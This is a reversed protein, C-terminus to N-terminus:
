SQLLTKMRDRLRKLRMRVAPPSLHLRGAVQRSSEGMLVRGILLARSSPDMGQLLEHMTAQSAIPEEQDQVFLTWGAPTGTSHQRRSNERQRHLLLHRAIGRCLSSFRAESRPSSRQNMIVLAVDQVLDEADDPDPVLQRVYAELQPREHMFLQWRPEQSERIDM